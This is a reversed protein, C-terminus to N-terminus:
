DNQLFQWEKIINKIDFDEARKKSKESLIKALKENTLVESLAEALKKDNGVPTLIGFEAYEINDAQLEINTKPALIERPGSKCDASVIPLGCAMAELISCPLGERFSSLAFVKAKSLFKFPNDQRGLFYVSSGIGLDEVLQKLFTKTEGDGLFVLQAGAIKDKVKKFARILSIHNKEKSLRGATIVVPTKFIDQREKELPMAALRQIKEINIPNYTVAIKEKKIKFNGALNEAVTKSVCIIKKARNFFLNILMKEPWNGHSKSWLTHAAVLTKEPMTLIAMMDAPIGFAFIFDPNEKKIIKRFKFFGKIFYFIKFLFIKSVPIDLSALKGNYPFFVEQRFLVIVKELSDPLNLSLESVVREGGGMALTPILFIIKKNM